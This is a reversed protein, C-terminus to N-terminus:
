LILFRFIQLCLIKECSKQITTPLIFNETAARAMVTPEAAAKEPEEYTSDFQTHFDTKRVSAFCEKQSRSAKALLSCSRMVQGESVNDDQLM